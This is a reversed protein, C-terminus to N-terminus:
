RASPKWASAAAAARERASPRAPALRGLAISARSAARRRRRVVVRQAPDLRAADPAADAGLHEVAAARDGAGVPGQAGGEVRRQGARAPAADDDVVVPASTPVTRAWSTSVAISCASRGSSSGGRRARPAPRIVQNTSWRSSTRSECRGARRGRPRAARGRAQEDRQREAPQRAAVRDEVRREGGPEAQEVRDRLRASKTRSGSTSPM